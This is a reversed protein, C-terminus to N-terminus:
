GAPKPGALGRCDCSVTGKFYIERERFIYMRNTRNRLLVRLLVADLRSM